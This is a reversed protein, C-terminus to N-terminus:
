SSITGSMGSNHQFLCLYVLDNEREFYLILSHRLTYLANYVAKAHYIFFYVYNNKCVIINEVM